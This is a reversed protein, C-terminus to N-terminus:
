QNNKLQNKMLKVQVKLAQRSELPLIETQSLIKILPLRADIVRKIEASQSPYHKRVEAADLMSIEAAPATDCSGGPSLFMWSYFHYKMISKPDYATIELDDLPSLQGLQRYTEARSWNYPPGGFVKYLGPRKGNNPIYEMNDNQKDIYGQEDDWLLQTSCGSNPNQHEHRLGLVHGFEHLVVSKWDSPLRKHFDCLNMSASSPSAYRRDSNDCGVLSWNGGEPERFSIRVEAAYEEDDRRWTYFQGQATAPGFDLKFNAFEWEKATEMIKKCLSPEAFDEEFAVRIVSAPTWLNSAAIVAEVVEPTWTKGSDFIQQTASAVDPRAISELLRRTSAPERGLALAAVATSTQLKLSNSSISHKEEDLKAQIKSPLKECTPYYYNKEDATANLQTGILLGSLLVTSAIAPFATSSKQLLVEEIKTRSM